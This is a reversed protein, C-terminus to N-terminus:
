LFVNKWTYYMRSFDNNVWVNWLSICHILKVTIKKKKRGPPIEVSFLKNIVSYNLLFISVKSM